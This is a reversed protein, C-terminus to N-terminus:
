KIKMDRIILKLKRDENESMPEGKTYKLKLGKIFSSGEKTIPKSSLVEKTQTDLIQLTYNDKDKHNYLIVGQLVSVIVMLSVVYKIYPARNRNKLTLIIIILIIGLTMVRIYNPNFELSKEGINKIILANLNM